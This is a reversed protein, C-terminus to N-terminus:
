RRGYKEDLAEFMIASFDEPLGSEARELSIQKLHKWQEFTAYLSVRKTGRVAQPQGGRASPAPGVTPRTPPANALPPRPAPPRPTAQLSGEHPAPGVLDSDLPSEPGAVQSRSPPVQASEPTRPEPLADPIEGPQTPQLLRGIPTRPTPIPPPQFSTKAM